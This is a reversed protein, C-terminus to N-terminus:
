HLGYDLKKMWGYDPTWVWDGPELKLGKLWTLVADRAIDENHPNEFLAFIEDPCEYTM